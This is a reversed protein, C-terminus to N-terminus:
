SEAFLGQLKSKLQTVSCIGHANDVQTMFALLIAGQLKQCIVSVQKRSSLRAADLKWREPEFWNFSMLRSADVVEAKKSSNGYFSEIASICEKMSLIADRRPADIHVPPSICAQSGHLSAASLCHAVVDRYSTGHAVERDQSQSRTQTVMSLSPCVEGADPEAVFDSVVEAMAEFAAETSEAHQHFDERLKALREAQEDLKGNVEVLTTVM